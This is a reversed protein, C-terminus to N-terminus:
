AGDRRRLPQLIRIDPPHGYVRRGGVGFGHLVDRQVPSQRVQTAHLVAGRQLVQDEIATIAALALALKIYNLDSWHDDHDHAEDHAAPATDTDM